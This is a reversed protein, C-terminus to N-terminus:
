WDGEMADIWRGREALGNELEGIEDKEEMKRRMLNNDKEWEDVDDRRM